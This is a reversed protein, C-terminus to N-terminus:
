EDSGAFARITSLNVELLNPSVEWNAILGCDWTGCVSTIHVHVSYAPSPALFLDHGVHSKANRHCPTTSLSKPCKHVGMPGLMHRNNLLGKMKELGKAPGERLKRAHPKVVTPSFPKENPSSAKLSLQGPVDQTRQASVCQNSLFLFGAFWSM